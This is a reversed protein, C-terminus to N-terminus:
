IQFSIPVQGQDEQEQSVPVQIPLLVPVQIQQLPIPKQLSLSEQQPVQQTKQAQPQLFLQM